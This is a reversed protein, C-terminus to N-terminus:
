SSAAAACGSRLIGILERRIIQLSEVLEYSAAARNDTQTVGAGEGDRLEFKRDPVDNGAELRFLEEQASRDDLDRGIRRMRHHGAHRGLRRHEHISAGHELHFLTELPGHECSVLVLSRREHGAIQDAFFVQEAFGSREVDLKALAMDDQDAEARLPSTLRKACKADEEVSGQVRPSQVSQQLRADGARYLQSMNKRKRRTRTKLTPMKACCPVAGCVGSASRTPSVPKM